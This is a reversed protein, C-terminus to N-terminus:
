PTPQEDSDDPLPLDYDGDDQLSFVGDLTFDTEDNQAAPKPLPARPGVDIAEDTDHDAPPQTSRRPVHALKECIAGAIATYTAYLNALEKTTDHTQSANEPFSKRVHTKAAGFASEQQKFSRVISADDVKLGTAMNRLRSLAKHIDELAPVEDPRTLARIMRVKCEVLGHDIVQRCASECQNLTWKGEHALVHSLAKKPSHLTSMPRVNSRHQYETDVTERTGRRLRGNTRNERRDM